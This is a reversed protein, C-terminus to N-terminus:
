AQRLAAQCGSMESRKIAVLCLTQTKRMRGMRWRRTLVRSSEDMHLWQKLDGGKGSMLEGNRQSNTVKALAATSVARHRTERRSSSASPCRAPFMKANEVPEVGEIEAEFEM